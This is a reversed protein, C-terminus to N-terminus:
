SAIAVPEVVHLAALAGDLKGEAAQHLLCRGGLEPLPALMRPFRESAPLQKLARCLATLRVKGARLVLLGIEATRDQSDGGLASALLGRVQRPSVKFVEALLAWARPLSKDLAQATFAALAARGKNERQLWTVLEVLLQSRELGVDEAMRGFRVAALEPMDVPTLRQEFPLCRATRHAKRQRLTAQLRRWGEDTLHTCIWSRVQEAFEAPVPVTNVGNYAAAANVQAQLPLLAQRARVAPHDRQLGNDPRLNRVTFSRDEMRHGLEIVLGIAQDDTFRMRPRAM